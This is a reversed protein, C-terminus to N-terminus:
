TYRREIWDRREGKLTGMTLPKRSVPWRGSRGAQFEVPKVLRTELGPVSSVERSVRIPVMWAPRLFSRCPNWGVIEPSRIERPFHIPCGSLLGRRRIKTGGSSGGAWECWHPNPRYVHSVYILAGEFM